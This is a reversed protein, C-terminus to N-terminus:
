DEEKKVRKKKKKKKGVGLEARKKKRDEQLEYIKKTRRETETFAFEPNRRLENSKTKLMYNKQKLSEYTKELREYEEEADVINRTHIMWDPMRTIHRRIREEGRGTGQPRIKKDQVAMWLDFEKKLMKLEAHKRAVAKGIFDMNILNEDIGRDIDSMDLIDAVDIIYSEGNLEVEVKIAECIIKDVM